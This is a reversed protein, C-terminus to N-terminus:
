TDEKIRSNPCGHRCAQYLRVRTPNTAAFPRTQYEECQDSPIEGQVPCEVTRNLFVGEVLAQLRNTPAPYKDNLVQNIVTASPYGDAQRLRDAVRKQSLKKCQLGLETLWDHSNM